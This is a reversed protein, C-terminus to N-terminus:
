TEVLYNDFRRPYVDPTGTGPANGRVRIWQFVGGFSMGPTDAIARKIEDRSAPDNYYAEQLYMTKDGQGYLKMAAHASTLVRYEYGYVDFCYCGPYPLSAQKLRLLFPQLGLDGHIASFGCSLAPDLGAAIYARWLNMCYSRQQPNTNWTENCHEVGLDYVVRLSDRATEATKISSLTFDRNQASQLAIAAAKWGHWSRPLANGQPGFRLHVELYGISQILRLIAGLNQAHQDSLAGTGSNCVHHWTDTPAPGYWLILTVQRQGHEYMSRLDSAVADPFLHYAGIVPNEMNGGIQFYNSGGTKM